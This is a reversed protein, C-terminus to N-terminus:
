TAATVSVVAAGATERITELPLLSGGFPKAKSIQADARGLVEAARRPPSGEGLTPSIVPWGERVAPIVRRQGGRHLNCGSIGSARTQHFSANERGPSGSSHNCSARRARATSPKSVGNSGDARALLTTTDKTWRACAMAVIFAAARRDLRLSLARRCCGVAAASGAGAAPVVVGRYRRQLAERSGPQLDGSGSTSRQAGGRQGRPRSRARRPSRRRAHEASPRASVGVLQPRDPAAGAGPGLGAIRNRDHHGFRQDRAEAARGLHACLGLSPEGAGASRDPRADRGCAASSWAPPRAPPSQGAAAGPALPAADAPQGCLV